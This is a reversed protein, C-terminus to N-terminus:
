STFPIIPVTASPVHMDNSPRQNQIKAERFRVHQTTPITGRGTRFLPKGFVIMIYQDNAVYSQGWPHSTEACTEPLVNPGVLPFQEPYMRNVRLRSGFGLKRVSTATRSCGARAGEAPSVSRCSSATSVSDQLSSRGWVDTSPSVLLRALRQAFNCAARSWCYARQTGHSVNEFLGRVRSFDDLNNNRRAGIRRRGKIEFQCASVQSIPVMSPEFAVVEVCFTCRTYFVWPNARGRWM